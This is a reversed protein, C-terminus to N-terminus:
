QVYCGMSLCAIVFSSSGPERCLGFIMRRCFGDNVDYPSPYAVYVVAQSSLQVHSLDGFLHGLFM